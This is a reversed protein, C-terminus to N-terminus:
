GRARAPATAALRTAAYADLVHNGDFLGGAVGYM